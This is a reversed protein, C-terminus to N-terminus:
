TQNQYTQNQYTQRCTSLGAEMKIFAARQGFWVGRRGRGLCQVLGGLVHEVVALDQDLVAEDALLLVVELGVLALLVEEAREKVQRAEVDLPM